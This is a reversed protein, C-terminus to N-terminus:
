ATTATLLPLHVIRLRGMMSPIHHRRLVLHAALRLLNLETLVNGDVFHFVLQTLNLSVQFVVSNVRDLRLFVFRLCVVVNGFDAMEAALHHKLGALSSIV